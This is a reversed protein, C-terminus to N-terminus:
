NSTMVITSNIIEKKPKKEAEINFKQKIQKSIPRYLLKKDGHVTRAVIHSHKDTKQKIQKFVAKENKPTKCVRAAIHILSYQNYDQFESANVCESEPSIGLKEMLQVGQYLSDKNKDIVKVKFGYKKALIIATLPLPGSGVVVVNKDLNECCGVLTSYEFDLLKLYNQYYPFQKIKQNPNESRLIKNNWHKELKLESETCRRRLEKIERDSIDIDIEGDNVTRVLKEFVRNTKQCPKLTELGTIESKLKSLKPM